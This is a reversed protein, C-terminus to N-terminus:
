RSANYRTGHRPASTPTPDASGRFSAERHFALRRSRAACAGAHADECSRLPRTSRPWAALSPRAAFMLRAVAYRVDKSTVPTGDEFTVGDRLRAPSEPGDIEIADLAVMLLDGTTLDM